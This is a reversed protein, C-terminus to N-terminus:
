QAPTTVSVPGVPKGYFLARVRFYCTTQVPLRTKRFSTTDPPLLACPVFAEDPRASIELLYGDEDTSHDRWRVDVSTPSSLTTTLDAPMAQHFTAIKRISYKQYRDAAVTNTPDIPGMLLSAADDITSATGTTIDASKTPEGFFPELRYLLTTQPSVNPHLFSTEGSDSDLADLQIYDSGPTTYEVWVGGAATANNKWRVIVNNGNTAAASLETPLAFATDPAAPRNRNLGACGAFSFILAAFITPGFYHGLHKM